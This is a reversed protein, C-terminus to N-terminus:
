MEVTQTDKGMKQIVKCKVYHLTPEQSCNPVFTLQQQLQPCFHPNITENRIFLLIFSNPGYNRFIATGNEVM